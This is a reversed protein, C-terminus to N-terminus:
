SGIVGRGVRESVSKGEAVGYADPPLRSALEEIPSAALAAAETSSAIEVELVPSGAPGRAPTVGRLRELQQQREVIAAEARLLEAEATAILGRIEEQRSEARRKAIKEAEEM